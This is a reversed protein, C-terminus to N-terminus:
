VCGVNKMANLLRDFLALNESVRTNANVFKEQHFHNSSSELQIGAV